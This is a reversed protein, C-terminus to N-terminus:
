KLSKIRFSKLTSNAYPHSEARTLKISATPAENYSKQNRNSSLKSNSITEAPFARALQPAATSRGYLMTGLADPKPPIFYHAKDIGESNSRTRTTSTAVRFGSFM